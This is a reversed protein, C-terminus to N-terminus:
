KQKSDELQDNINNKRKGYSNYNKATAVNLYNNSNLNSVVM